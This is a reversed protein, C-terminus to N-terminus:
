AYKLLSKSPAATSSARHSRRRSVPAQGVRVGADCWIRVSRGAVSSVRCPGACRPGPAVVRVLDACLPQTALRRAATAGAVPGDLRRPRAVAARRRRRGSRPRPAPRVRVADVAVPAPVTDRVVPNAPLYFQYLMSRLRQQAWSASPDETTPVLRMRVTAGEPLVEALGGVDDAIDWSNVGRDVVPRTRAYGAVLLLGLSVGVILSRTRGRGALALLGLASMLVAAVVTIGIVRIETTTGLHALLGLMMSRVAGAARLDDDRWLRLM